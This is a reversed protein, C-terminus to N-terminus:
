LGAKGAQWLRGPASATARLRAPFFLKEHRHSLREGQEEMPQEGGRKGSGGGAAKSQNDYHFHAKELTRKVGQQPVTTIEGFRAILSARTQSMGHSCRPSQKSQELRGAAKLLHRRLAEPGRKMASNGGYPIQLKGKKGKGDIM